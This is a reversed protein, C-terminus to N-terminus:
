SEAAGFDSFKNGDADMQLADLLGNMASLLAQHTQNVSPTV